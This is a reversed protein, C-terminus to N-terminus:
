ARWRRAMEMTTTNAMKKVWPLARKPLPHPRRVLKLQPPPLLQLPKLRLPLLLM